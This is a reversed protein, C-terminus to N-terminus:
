FASQEDMMAFELRQLVKRARAAYPGSAAAEAIKKAMPLAAGALARADGKGNAETLAEIGDALKEFAAIKASWPSAGEPAVIKEVTFQYRKNVIALNGSLKVQPVDSYSEPYERQVVMLSKLQKDVDPTGPTLPMMGESISGANTLLVMGLESMVIVGDLDHHGPSYAMQARAAGAFSLAVLFLSVVFYRM